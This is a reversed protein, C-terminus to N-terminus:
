QAESLTYTPVKTYGIMMLWGKGIESADAGLLNHDLVNGGFSGDPWGDTQVHYTDVVVKGKTGGYNWHSDDSSNNNWFVNNRFVNNPIDSGVADVLIRIDPGGNGWAVNHDVANDNADVWFSIGELANDHVLNYRIVNKNSGIRVSPTYYGSAAQTGS